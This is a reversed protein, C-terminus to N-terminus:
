WGLGLCTFQRLIKLEIAEQQAVAADSGTRLHPIGRLYDKKAEFLAKAPPLGARRHKWFHTHMPGGSFHYPPVDPSYHVGTCGVFAWAGAQLFALALSDAPTRPGAEASTAVASARRQVPMAGWCCGTFVVGRCEKPVNSLNLAEYLEEAETEGWFRSADFDAGHLMLYLEDETLASQMGLLTQPSVLESTTISGSGALGNFVNAAFPRHFNRVGFRKASSAPGAALARYVLQPTKGDPIRSVPIEPLDDGDICGYAADSWVIYQDPERDANPVRSRLTAPLTDLRLAPVVDYGGVLVVGVADKAPGCLAANVESLAQRVDSSVSELIAHSQGQSTKARGIESIVHGAERQGLNQVLRARDTVFLLKDLKRGGGLEIPPLGDVVVQSGGGQDVVPQGEPAVDITITVRTKTHPVKATVEVVNPM